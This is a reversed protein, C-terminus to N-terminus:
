LAPNQCLGYSCLGPRGMPNMPILSNAMLLTSILLPFCAQTDKFKASFKSASQGRFLSTRVRNIRRIQKFFALNCPLIFLGTTHNKYLLKM